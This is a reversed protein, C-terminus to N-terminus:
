QLRATFELARVDAAKVQWHAGDDVVSANGSALVPQLPYRSKPLLWVM